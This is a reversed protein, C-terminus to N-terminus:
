QKELAVITVRLGMLTVNICVNGTKNLFHKTTYKGINDADFINLTSLVHTVLSNTYHYNFIVCKLITPNLEMTQRVVHGYGRGFRTRWLTRALAEKKLKWYERKGKLDVLLQKRRRGRKGAV